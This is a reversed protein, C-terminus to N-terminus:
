HPSFLLLLLLLSPLPYSSEREREGPQKIAMSFSLDDVLVVFYLTMRGLWFM